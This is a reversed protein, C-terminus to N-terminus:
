PRALFRAVLEIGVGSTLCREKRDHMLRATWDTFGGDGIATRGWPFDVMVHFCLGQFYTAQRARGLDFVWPIGQDQLLRGARSLPYRLREPVPGLDQTERPLAADLTPQARQWRTQTLDVGLALALHQTVRTDSIRIQRVPHGLADFLRVYTAVHEGFLQVEVADSGRTRASSALAFLAFHQTHSSDTLPQMRVARTCTARRAIPAGARRDQACLLALPQTPDGMLEAGRTASLVTDQPNDGLLAATGLPLVPSLPSARTEPSLADMAAGQVRVLDRQDVPSPTMLPTRWRQLLTRLDTPRARAVALELTSLDSRSLGALAAWLDMGQTDRLIRRLAPSV